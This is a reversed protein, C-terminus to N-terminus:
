GRLVRIVSEACRLVFRAEPLGAATQYGGRVLRCRLAEDGAIRALAAAIAASDASPVVVANVGDVAYDRMGGCDSIVVATGCAMAEIPPLPFGEYLSPLVFVDCSRYFSAIDSRDAAGAAAEERYRTFLDPFHDAPYDVDYVVPEIDAGQGVLSELAAIAYPAGKTGGAVPLMGVRLRPHRQRVALDPPIRDIFEARIGPNIVEDIFRRGIRDAVFNSVAIKYGPMRYGLRALARLGPKMWAPRHGHRIHSETEVGQIVSFMRAQPQALFILAPTLYGTSMVLGDAGAIDAILRRMYDPKSRSTIVDVRINDALPVPSECAYDPAVFRVAVDRAALGNALAAVIRIGGSRNMALLPIHVTSM